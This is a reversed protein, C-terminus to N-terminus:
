AGATMNGNRMLGMDQFLIHEDLNIEMPLHDALDLFFRRMGDINEEGLLEFIFVDQNMMKEKLTPLNPYDHKELSTANSLSLKFTGALAFKSFILLSGLETLEFTCEGIGKENVDAFFQKKFKQSVNLDTVDFQNLVTRFMLALLREPTSAFQVAVPGSFVDSKVQEFEFGFRESFFEIEAADFLEVSTSSAVSLASRTFGGTGIVAAATASINKAGTYVEQIAKNGIPQTYRKCQVAVVFDGRRAEIDVGQDNSAQSVIATWGQEELKAACWHEFDIGNEPIQSTDVMGDELWKDVYKAVEMMPKVSFFFKLSGEPFFYSFFESVEEFFKEYDTEGYKNKGSSLARAFLPKLTSKREELKEFILELDGRKLEIAKALAYKGISQDQDAWFISIKRNGVLRRLGDLEKYGDKNSNNETRSFFYTEWYNSKLAFELEEEIWDAALNANTGQLAHHNVRLAELFTAINSYDIVEGPYGGAKAYLISPKANGTLYIDVAKKIIATQDASTQPVLVTAETSKEPENQTKAKSFWGFM